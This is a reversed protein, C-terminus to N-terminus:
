TGPVISPVKGSQADMLNKDCQMTADAGLHESSKINRTLQSLAPSRDKYM